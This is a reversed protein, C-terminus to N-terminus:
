PFRAQVGVNLDMWSQLSRLMGATLGATAYIGVNRALDLQPGITLRVIFDQKYRVPVGQDTYSRDSRAKAGNELEVGVAPEIFFKFAADSMTYLRVGAGLIILPSTLSVAERTFGFRGWLFPEVGGLPAFGIASDLALPSGFGCLTQPKGDDNLKRSCLPSDNYRMAIRYGGGLALRVSFQGKHSYTKDESPVTKKEPVNTAVDESESEDPATTTANPTSAEGPSEDSSSAGRAVHSGTVAAVCGLVAILSRLSFCSAM